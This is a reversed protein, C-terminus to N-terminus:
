AAPWPPSSAESRTSRTRRRTSWRTASWRRSRRSRRAAMPWCRATRGASSRRRRSRRRTRGRYRRRDARRRGRDDGARRHRWIRRRGHRSPHAPRADAGASGHRRAVAARVAGPAAPRRHAIWSAAKRSAVLVDKVHVMGVVDDLSRAFCRCPAFPGRRHDRDVLADFGISQDVAVIHALRPVM